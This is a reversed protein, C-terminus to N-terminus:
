VPPSDTLKRAPPLRLRLPDIVVLPAFTKSEAPSLPAVAGVAAAVSVRVAPILTVLPPPLPLMVNCLPPVPPMASFLPVSKSFVPPSENLVAPWNVRAPLVILPPVNLAVPAVVCSVTFLPVNEPTVNPISTTTGLPRESNVVPPRVTADPRMTCRVPLPLRLM